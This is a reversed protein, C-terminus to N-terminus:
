HRGAELGRETLAYVWPEDPSPGGSGWWLVAKWVYGREHLWELASEAEERDLGMAAAVDEATRSAGQHPLNLASLAERHEESLEDM